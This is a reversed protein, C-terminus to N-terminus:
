RRGTLFDELARLPVSDGYLGARALRMRQRISTRYVQDTAIRVALAIYAQEDQAVLEALGLRKLIGSALRGRLFRGERTVIPLSCEVAQLATNFGSFGITDLYLDARQLWGFFAAPTQWPVIAVYRDFELGRADFAARVREAVRKFLAHNAHEFFVIRCSGLRHAIEAFVWDHAPAYKFPVGPSILLPVRADIQPAVVDGAVRPPEFSVGLHPLAVLQESYNEQANPPELDEGSLYHDISPLGTTEPHGWTALQVPALRLSALRVTTPDMGIEPYLIVDPEQARIAALWHRLEKPGREYHAARSKAFVTEDDEGQGLDFAYLAIRKTDLGSFWGRTLATWVSHSRFHASIVALRLPRHRKAAPAHAGADPSRTMLRSCLGGYRALLERNNEEQYALEFPQDAGVALSYQVASRQAFWRELDALGEAFARRRAGPDDGLSYVVPLQAMALSWRAPAHEPDVALAARFAEMAQAGQDHDRLAHGLGFYADAFQPRLEIARRFSAIALDAQGLDRQAVALNYHADAFQPDAELAQEYCELAKATRGMAKLATGLNCLVAPHGPRSKLVRRFGEVAADLEGRGAQLGAMAFRAEDHGPAIELARCYSALADDDHGHAQAQAGQEYALKAAEMPQAAMAGVVYSHVIRADDFDPQAELARRLHADAQAHLGQTYLLKGLNYHAAANMPHLAIVREYCHRAGAADGIAELAVGLNLHGRLDNPAVAIAQQYSKCARAFDGAEEALNGENVLAEVTTGAPTSARSTSSCWEQWLRRYIAEVNRTFREENMLPSVRMRERLSARLDALKDPARAFAVAREVYDEASSAIWDNLGLTALVSSASRSTVRESPCTLVPVGMWLADCTTTGGSYPTPDLAIDVEDYLSLYDRVPLFPRLSIRDAAVGLEIFATKLRQGAQGEAVGVILLRADPAAKLITAWLRRTSPSLKAAQNFSGLTIHGKRKVPPAAAHPIEIFPRYCWLSDPLHVLRETHLPQSLEVPDCRADTIRYQIRTLGTTNLYGLWSLQIPAPQRAFLGLRPVGSHGSLDVLIDIGHQAILAALQDDSVDHAAHWAYATDTLRKTFADSQASTAYCHTEVEARAHRELLPLMFLGVPHYHFDGSVYGIRLRRRGDAENTFTSCAAQRAELDAGFAQHLRFLEQASVTDDFNLAFLEFSQLEIDEPRAERGARLVTVMERVRGQRHLLSGLGRYVPAFSADLEVVRRFAREAEAERRLSVLVSGYNFLAETWEPKARLALELEAAAATLDGRAELAHFLAARAEHLDPDTELAGRLAAEAEVADLALANRYCAHAAIREGKAEAITGDYVLRLIRDAASAGRRKSIWGFM